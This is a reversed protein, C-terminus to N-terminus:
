PKAEAAGAAAPAAVPSTLVGVTRHNKQFVMAGAKLVDERTVKEYQAPADFLKRYDKEFVDFQGLLAAKGDITAIQKWFSAAFQNKARTLEADTVGKSVLDALAADVTKEVDALNAGEPLTLTVWTLMPDFGEQFRAGVDIAMKKEEVLLRHLRSSNGETLITMLLNLAPGQPDNAAPSKYAFYLLPTNAEREVYVRKEGM